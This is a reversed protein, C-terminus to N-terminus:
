VNRRNAGDISPSNHEQMSRSCDIVLYVLGLGAMEVTIPKGRHRIEVGQQSIAIHRDEFHKGIEIDKKPM